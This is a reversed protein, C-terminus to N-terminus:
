MFATCTCYYLPHKDSRPHYMCMGKAWKNQFLFSM